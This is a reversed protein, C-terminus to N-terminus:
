SQVVESGDARFSVKNAVDAFASIFDGTLMARLTDDELTEKAAIPIEKYITNKDAPSDGFAVLYVTVTRAVSDTNCLTFSRMVATTLAPVTYLTATTAALLVGEVLPKPTVTTPV